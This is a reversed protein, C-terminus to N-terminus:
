YVHFLIRSSSFPFCYMCVHTSSSTYHPHFLVISILSLLLSLSTIYLPFCFYHFIFLRTTPFYHCLLVFSLLCDSFIPHSSHYIACSSALSHALLSSTVSIFSCHIIIIILLRLSLYILNFLPLILM